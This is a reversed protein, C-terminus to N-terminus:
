QPEKLSLLSRRPTLSLETFRAQFAATSAEFDDRVEVANRRPSLAIALRGLYLASGGSDVVFLSRIPIWSVSGGSRRLFAILLYSGPRLHWYFSGDGDLRYTMADPEGAREVLLEHHTSSFAGADFHVLGNEDTAIVRGFVISEDRGLDRADRVEIGSGACAALVAVWIGIAARKKM